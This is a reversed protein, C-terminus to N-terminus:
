RELFRKKLLENALLYAATLGLLTLVVPLAVPALGLLDAVPPIYPLAVTIIAVLLSSILLGIGPRSRLIPRATRLSMLVVIETLTSEIFWASRFLTDDAGFGWILVAFTALDFATSISGFIIMFNRIGRVDWTGPRQLHEPDVRDAAITTAPFDSLFNLLLIQRPLLPLFPLFLSAAAMSIMNGFNASTTVRVYKLTNAFTERGLTVGATIATLSKDLLVVTAAEKAVDVATNVSIGVDAAHLAPADNIGDGLYAVTEGNSRIAAVIRRKHLPAVEAFVSVGVVRQALAADDLADIDAGTVITSADLGASAAIAGAVVHNDGTIVVVAVGFSELEAIAAAADPKVPDHFALFGRFELQTEANLDIESVNEPMSRTALGLVRFGQESLTQFRTRLADRHADIAQTGGAIRVTTCIDLMGEFAGKSILLRDDGVAALVTLRRRTFDYPNESLLTASQPPRRRDLIATDLPNPFAEQLGANLSALSLVEESEAGDPDLASSLVAAGDTITGTKDTCLVTLSGLDEISDLRKVIVRQRAMRRAGTSLSLSVIAPLMQPTLGVALALSFLLSDILPRGLAWNVVFIFVTLVLMLRVLMLGFRTTGRTFATVVRRTQLEHSVAGFQTRAGTRVAVARGSGSVVHTGLFAANLRDGLECQEPVVADPRKEVPFSEGTLASEDVLLEDCDLLRCDAPVIGGARLVVVDGHVVERVPVEVERGSRLVPVTVEVTKLLAAVDENARFEQWYGLLGSALIIVLIIVGDLVDGAIISIITAAVLILIIPSSFQGVLLRLWPAFGHPHRERMMLRQAQLAVAAQEDSLGAETAGLDAIVGARDRAWFAEDAGLTLRM